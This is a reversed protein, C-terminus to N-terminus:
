TLYRIPFLAFRLKRIEDPVLPEPLSNRRPIRVGLHRLREKHLEHLDGNAPMAAIEDGILVWDQITSIGGIVEKARKKPFPLGMRYLRLLSLGDTAEGRMYGDKAPQLLPLEDAWKEIFALTKNFHPTKSSSHCFCARSQDKLGNSPSGIPNENDWAHHYPSKGNQDRQLLIDFVRFKERYDDFMKPSTKDEDSIFIDYKQVNNFQKLAFEYLGYRLLDLDDEECAIHAFTRADFNTYPRPLINGM